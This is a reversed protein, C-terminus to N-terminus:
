GNNIESKLRDLEQEIKVIREQRREENWFQTGCGPCIVPREIRPGWAYGCLVCSIKVLVVM